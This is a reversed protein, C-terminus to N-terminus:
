SLKPTPKLFEVVSKEAPLNYYDNRCRWRALRRLPAAYWHTKGWAIRNYFKFREILRYKEASVWPGSSGVYDFDAWEEISGPMQYGNREVERTIQSGPYPKFYFIPTHFGPHMARLKKAMDLTAQVSEDSEGPFGVIFPFIASINHRLCKGACELVYELKIDKQIWDIMEQSGSEVGILVRRLGSRSCLAFDEDSMRHGQDARMTAAWTIRLDRELFQHAIEVVRKRYTFFTEDQFDIDQINYRRAYCEIEEAMREPEIATWKRNYVFPDACFACRFFCGSSSIYDLQRRGKLRFYKEVDILDYRVPNLRNMDTLPQPPNQIINKGRRFAIGRIEAPDGGSALCEVIEGFTVEGQGQVTIDIAPEDMLTQLPFLSPHWGGWIVPLHPNVSKVARTIKLADRIPNGTLVTIGLCLADATETLLRDMANKELRGDIIVVEFKQPDLASGVALLALPMTYFLADPNYLVIKLRKM